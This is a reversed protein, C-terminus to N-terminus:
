RTNNKTTPRTPSALRKAPASGANCAARTLAPEASFSSLRDEVLARSPVNLPPSTTASSASEHPSSIAAPKIILLTTCSLFRGIGNAISFM